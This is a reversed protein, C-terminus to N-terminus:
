QADPPFTVAEPDRSWGEPVRAREEPDRSRVGPDRSPPTHTRSCDPHQPQRPSSRVSPAPASTLYSDRTAISGSSTAISIAVDLDAVELCVHHLSDEEAAFPAEEGVFCAGHPAILELLTCPPEDASGSAVWRADPEATFLAHDFGRTEDRVLESCQRYGLAGFSAAAAKLDATLVAVHHLRTGLFDGLDPPAAASTGATEATSPSSSWFDSFFPQSLVAFMSKNAARSVPEVLDRTELEGEEIMSQVHLTATLFRVNGSSAAM